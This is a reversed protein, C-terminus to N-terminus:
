TGVGSEPPELVAGLEKVLNESVTPEDEAVDESSYSGVLTPEDFYWDTTLLKLGPVAVKLNAYLADHAAKESEGGCLTKSFGTSYFGDDRLRNKIYDPMNDDSFEELAGCIKELAAEDALPEPLEIWVTVNYDRSM